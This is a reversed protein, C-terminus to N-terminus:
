AKIFALVERNVQEAFINPLLAGIPVVQDDDGHLLLVPIDIKRLDDTFDTESFAKICDHANKFGAQM